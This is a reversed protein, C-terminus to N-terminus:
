KALSAARCLFQPVGAGPLWRLIDNWLIGCSKETHCHLDKPFIPVKPRPDLFYNDLVQIMERTKGAPFADLTVVLYSHYVDLIYDADEIVPLVVSVM